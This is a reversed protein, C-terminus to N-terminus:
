CRLPLSPFGSMMRNRLTEKGSHISGDNVLRTMRVLHHGGTHPFLEPTESEQGGQVEPKVGSSPPSPYLIGM